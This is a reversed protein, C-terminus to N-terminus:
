QGNFDTRQMEAATKVILEQKTFLKLMKNMVIMMGGCLAGIVVVVITVPRRKRM